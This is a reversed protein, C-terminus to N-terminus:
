EREGKRRVYEMLVVVLAAGVAGVLVAVAIWDAIDM